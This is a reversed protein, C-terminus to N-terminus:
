FWKLVFQCWVTHNMGPLIAFKGGFFGKSKDLIHSIYTQYQNQSLKVDLIVMLLNYNQVIM